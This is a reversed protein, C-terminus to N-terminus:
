GQTTRRSTILAAAFFPAAATATASHRWSRTGVYPIVALVGLAGVVSLAHGARRDVVAAVASAATLAATTAFLAHHVWRFSHTDVIRTAVSIGLACNV